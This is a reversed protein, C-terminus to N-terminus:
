KRFEKGCFGCFSLGRNKVLFGRFGDGCYHFKRGYENTKVVSRNGRVKLYKSRYTKRKTVM